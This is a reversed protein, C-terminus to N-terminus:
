RLRGEIKAHMRGREEHLAWARERREAPSLNDLRSLIIRRQQERDEARLQCECAADTCECREGCVECVWTLHRTSM